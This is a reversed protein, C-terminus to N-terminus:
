RTMAEIKDVDVVVGKGSIVHGLYNVREKSFVCKKHNAFLSNDRLINFVVGLHKMHMNYDLNYILIDYFFM